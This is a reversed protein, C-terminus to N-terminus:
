GIRRTMWIADIWRPERRRDPSDGHLGLETLAERPDRPEPRDDVLGLRSLDDSGRRSAEPTRYPADSRGRASPDTRRNPSTKPPM